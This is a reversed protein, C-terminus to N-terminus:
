LLNNKEIYNTVDSVTINKINENEIKFNNIKKIINSDSIQNSNLIWLVNAGSLSAIHGPGTDNTVVLKSRKAISYIYAPPSNNINNIIKNPRQFIYKASEQDSSTGIVCVKYGKQMFYYSLKGYKEPDWQKYQGKISIGPILLIFNDYIESNLSKDLWKYKINIVEKIKIMKIQNFLGATTSEVGQVPIIYRFHSFRRSSSIKADTFIRFVFHYSATRTSNQLDIILDYKKNILSLLIKGTTFINNSRNDKIINNFYSSDNFFSIYKEETILDIEDDLYHQRISYIVPLSFIIDGLSGHKIILIKSL